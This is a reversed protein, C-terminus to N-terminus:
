KHLLEAVLKVFKAIRPGPVTAFDETVVYVRGTQVADVDKALSQWDAKATALKKERQEDTTGIINSPLLDIIVEPNMRIVGETSVIPAAVGESNSAVNIGGAYMLVDDFYKNYGAVFMNRIKGGGVERDLSILVKVKPKDAVSAAISNLEREISARLEAARKVTDDDFIAAIQGFSDLVDTFGSQNVVVSQLRLRKLREIADANEQLVFVANPQLTVVAEWNPDLLGGVKPLQKAEPPYNCFRSVGVVKDGLGLAFLTETISPSTSIIRKPSSVNTTVTIKNCGATVAFLTFLLLIRLYHKM